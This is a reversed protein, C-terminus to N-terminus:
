DMAWDYGYGGVGLVLKSAPVQEAFTQLTSRVFGISGVSGPANPTEHEDYAMAVIYDCEHALGRMLDADETAQVAASLEKGNAHLEVALAHVWELYRPKMSADFMEVDLQLGAFQNTVVFNVLADRVSKGGDRATLMRTVRRADFRAHSANSVTPVIRVGDAR